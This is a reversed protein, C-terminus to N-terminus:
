VCYFTFVKRQGRNCIALQTRAPHLETSTEPVPIPAFLPPRLNSPPSRLLIASLDLTHVMFGSGVAGLSRTSLGDDHCLAYPIPSSSPRDVFSCDSPSSSIRPTSHSFGSWFQQAMTQIIESCLAESREHWTGRVATRMRDLLRQVYVSSGMQDPSEVM